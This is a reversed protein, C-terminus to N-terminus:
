PLVFKSLNPVLKLFKFLKFNRVLEKGTGVFIRKGIRGELNRWHDNGYNDLENEERGATVDLNKGFTYIRRKSM